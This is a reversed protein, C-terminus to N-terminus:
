EHQSFTMQSVLRQPSFVVRPVKQGELIRFIVEAVIKGTQLPHSDVTAALEGERVAMVGEAIGDTGVLDVSAARNRRRVAELAGLAMNDNNCYIGQLKEHGELLALAESMARHYDWDAQVIKVISYSADTLTERFGLTRQRAAYATEPGAIVAFAGGGPHSEMLFRAAMAGADYQRPGVLFEVGEAGSEVINVVVIGAARARAVGKTLNTTTQPSIAIADPKEDILRLLAEAQGEPDNESSGAHAILTGGQADIVDEMGQTLLQWYENGFFKMVAGIRHQRRASPMPGLRERLETATVAGPDNDPDLDFAIPNHHVSPHKARTLWFVVCFLAAVILIVPLAISIRPKM